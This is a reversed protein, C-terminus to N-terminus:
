RTELPVNYQESLVQLHSWVADTIPIGKVARKERTLHEIKGLTEEFAITYDVAVQSACSSVCVAKQQVGKIYHRLCEAYTRAVFESVIMGFGIESKIKISGILTFPEFTRIQAATLNRTQPGGM